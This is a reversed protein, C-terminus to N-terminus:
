GIILKLEKLVIYEWKMARYNQALSLKMKVVICTSKEFKNEQFQM